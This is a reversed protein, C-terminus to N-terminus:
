ALSDLFDNRLGMSEVVARERRLAERMAPQRVINDHLAALRPYRARYLNFGIYQYTILNSAVAIDAITM